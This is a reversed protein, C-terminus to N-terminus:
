VPPVPLEIRFVCGEGLVSGATLTGGQREILRRALTLGMGSGRVGGGGQGRVHPEFVQALAKEPLGPGTDCVEFWFRDADRGSRLVVETGPPTYKLANDTLSRLALRTLDPDCVIPDSTTPEVRVQHGHVTLRGVAAAERLLAAPEYLERRLRHGDLAHRDADLQVSLLSALQRCADLMRDYRRRTREDATGAAGRALNQMTLDIV